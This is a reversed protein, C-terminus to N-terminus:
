NKKNKNKEITFAWKRKKSIISNLKLFFRLLSRAISKSHFFLIAVPILTVGCRRGWICWPDSILNEKKRDKTEGGCSPGNKEITEVTGGVRRRKNQSPQQM